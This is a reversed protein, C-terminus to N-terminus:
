AIGPYYGEKRFRIYSVLCMSFIAIYIIFLVILLLSAGYLDAYIIIARISLIISIATIINCGIIIFNLRRGLITMIGLVLYVLFAFGTALFTFIFALLAEVLGEIINVYENWDIFIASYVVAGGIDFFFLAVRLVAVLICLVGATIRLKEYFEM